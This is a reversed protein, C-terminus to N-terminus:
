KQAASKSQMKLGDHVSMLYKKVSNLDLEDLTKGSNNKVINRLGSEADISFGQPFYNLLFTITEAANNPGIGGAYVLGLNKFRQSIEKGFRVALSGPSLNLDLGVGHSPDFLVYDIFAKREYVQGILASIDGFHFDQVEHGKWIAYGESSKDSVAVKFITKFGIQKIQKLTKVNAPLTNLQVLTKEPNAGSLSVLKELDGVITLNDKTYYHFATILGYDLTKETIERLHSIRPQRPNHTGQNISKNSFQYGIVVPSNFKELRCFNGIEELQEISSVGSVSVFNQPNKM